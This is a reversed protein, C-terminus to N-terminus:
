DENKEREEKVERWKKFTTKFASTGELPNETDLWSYGWEDDNEFKILSGHNERIREISLNNAKERYFELSEEKDDFRWCDTVEGNVWCEVAWRAM